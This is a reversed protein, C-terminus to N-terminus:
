NSVATRPVIRGGVIHIGCERHSESEWWWRGSRPEDGPQVARTCPACGISPFGKDHLPNYPIRNTEIFQHVRTEDWNWLPNIKVMNNGADWSVVKVEDRSASQDRRLGTIWADFPALARRLPKVKRIFCCHKRNEVSERFFNPGGTRVATEVDESEPWYVRIDLNYRRRTDALLQYTEEFLRGTDLTFVPIRRGPEAVLHTLVQDEAGLSSALTIRGDFTRAAWQIVRAADAGALEAQWQEIQESSTM